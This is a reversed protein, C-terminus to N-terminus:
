TRSTYEGQVRAFRGPVRSLWYCCLPTSVRTSLALLLDPWSEGPDDAKRYPMYRVSPGFNSPQYESTYTSSSAAGTPCISQATPTSSIYILVTRRSAHAVVGDKGDEVRM